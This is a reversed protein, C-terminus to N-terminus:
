TNLPDLVGRVTQVLEAIRFPKRIFSCVLPSNIRARAVEDSYASTLIVKVDPRALSAEAIVEESSPGPITLDLLILAVEGGRTRLVDIAELGNAADLVDLGSKRLMKTIAPRLQEQDEVVLVSARPGPAAGEAVPVVDTDDAKREAKACPLLVEFSTGRGPESAVQIDGRLSRVIGHVVALGLGRGSFKTTFFPDFVRAQTEPSMGCGTDSVELRVYDGPLLAKGIADSESIRRPETTVRVVGAHDGLAESANVVLNMVIQSLQATRARVPALDALSTALTAHRSIAVKLLGLMRKVVDSVDVRELVDSEQGAYIMLQRVIESGRISLDRIATLEENPHSGSALEAMALETQALVAGLLNNFDHAIGGALTGLSELKQRAFSEQQARRDDTVDQCTGFLLEPSGGEDLLVESMCFVTRVESDPRVVRFEIVGGRRERLCDSVWEALRDREPSVVIDFFTKYDREYDMPQGTIRFIEESWTARSTRLDWTWHGIHTMREATKLRAESERLRETAEVQETIDQAAGALRVVM